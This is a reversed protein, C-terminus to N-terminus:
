RSDRLKQVLDRYRGRPHRRLYQDALSATRGDEAAASAEVELAMAEEVLGGEPYRLLYLTLNDMARRADHDRRLATVAAVCLKAEAQTIPPHATTTGPADRPVPREIIVAPDVPRPSPSAVPPKRVPPRTAAPRPEPPSAAPPSPPPPHMTTAPARREPTDGVKVAPPAKPAMTGGAARRELFRRAIMATAASALLLLVVAALVISPRLQNGAPRRGPERIRARVRVMAAMSPAHPRISRLIEAGLAERPDPVDTPDRSRDSM